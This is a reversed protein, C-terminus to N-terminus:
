PDFSLAVVCNPEQFIVQGSTTTCIIEHGISCQPRQEPNIICSGADNTYQDNQAALAKTFVAALIALMLVVSSLLRSRKM